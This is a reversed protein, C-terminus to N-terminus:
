AAEDGMDGALGPALGRAVPGQAIAAGKGAGSAASLPAGLMALGAMAMMWARPRATRRVPGEITM